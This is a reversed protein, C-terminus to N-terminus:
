GMKLAVRKNSTSRPKSSLSGENRSLEILPSAIEKAGMEDSTESVVREKVTKANGQTITAEM